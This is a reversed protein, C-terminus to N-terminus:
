LPVNDCQQYERSRGFATRVGADGWLVAIATGVEPPLSDGEIQAPQMFITQVHYEARQDELPIGLWEMAELIVRMTLVTNSFIIEKFMNREDQSYTGEFLLKTTKLLTSKGSESSGLFLIKFDNTEQLARSPTSPQVPRNRPVVVSNWANLIQTSPRQLNRLWSGSKKRRTERRARAVAGANLPPLALPGSTSNNVVSATEEHTENTEEPMAELRKGVPQSTKGTRIADKRM